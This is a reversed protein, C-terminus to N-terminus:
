FDKPFYRWTPDIARNEATLRAQDAFIGPHEANGTWGGPYFASGGFYLAGAFPNVYLGYAGMGLNMGAEAPHVVNSSTPNYYYNYVGIGDFVTGVVLSGKALFGGVGHVNFTKTYQNGRWANAYFKPSFTTTKTALRFTGHVTELMEGAMKPFYLFQHATHIMSHHGGHEGGEEGGWASSYIPTFTSNKFFLSGISVSELTNGNRASNGKEYYGGLSIGANGHYTRNTISTVFLGNVRLNGDTGFGYSNGGAALGGFFTATADNGFLYISSGGGYGGGGGENNSSWTGGFPSNWLTNIITSFEASTLDGMPDNFMVPNNFGFQYPNIGNFKEALMDVGTFRGIQADYKRYFTNSYNLEGEDEYENGGNYGYRNVMVSAARYSINAMKLGYPYFENTELLAGRTHKVKLNDFYVPINPTNNSVYIYLYGSQTIPMDQRTHPEIAGAANVREFSSSSSVLNFQEDFLVWNVYALPINSGNTYAPQNNLFNTVSSNVVGSSQLQTSTLGHTNVIASGSVGSILGNVIDLMPSAVPANAPTEQYYSSVYFDFKDGKMVKLTISPGVKQSGANGQVKAVYNNANPIPFNDATAYGAPKQVRTLTLGAYISDEKNKIATTTDMTAAPYDDVKVEDTIVTRVNGAHDKIMYDFVVSSLGGVVSPIKWRIRGEEFMAYQLTDPAPQTANLPYCSLYVYGGVYSYKKISNTKYDKVTKALTAGSADYTYYTCSKGVLAMSDPKDLLNFVVGQMRRNNDKIINGNDDYAYDAGTSSTDKFDGMTGSAAGAYDTVSLLRNTFGTYLYSLSDILANGGVSLLGRQSMNLINGGADYRLNSVTYNVKDSTWATAGQNQQSYDAQTLRGVNDYTYGYARAIGDGANKWRVGAINGNSQNTTFGNNYSLIEGFYENTNSSAQTVFPANISTLMGQMNYAFAQQQLNAGLVKTSVQGTEKYSLQSIIKDGLNDINKTVDLVRGVHDYNYKTLMTHTQANSGAKTHSTHSRLVIGKYSYQMTAIDVGGTHNKQQTQIARGYNDYFSISYTYNTTGLINTKTGTVAGRTRASQLIPQAYLPSTNYSTIFNTATIVNTNIYSGVPGNGNQSIIWNYDDYYTESTITYTGALTPYAVSRAAQAQITDISLASIIVGSKVPRSQGDYLVFAWKNTLALYPDQTMVPRDFIDYATYSKGKGPIHKAIQRGRDDYFYAYCLGTFSLPSLVATSTILNKAAKPPIIVRLNNMEDYVYYTCLWGFAGLGPVDAEQTKTLVTKGQLDTYSISRLGNEDILEKVSLSGAVYFASVNPKDLISNINVSWYLVSDQFTNSRHSMSKGKNAGGWENGAAMSKIPINMPSGDYLTQSYIVQETPYLAKYFASDEALANQKFTGNSTSAVYPMYSIAPRGFEDFNTVGVNDKRLPSLQKAVTQVTRGYGDAYSIATQVNDVIANMNVLASDLMPIQPSYTRLCNTPTTTYAPPLPKAGLVPQMTSGNPIVQAHVQLALLCNRKYV